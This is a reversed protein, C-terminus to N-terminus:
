NKHYIELKETYFRPLEEPLKSISLNFNTRRIAEGLFPALPIVHLNKMQRARESIPISDTVVFEEISSNDIIDAADKALIAHTVAAYVKKAGHKILTEAGRVLTKGTSVMDDIIICIKGKVDGVIDIISVQDPKPRRKFIIALKGGMREALNSARTVGGADPSVIVLEEPPIHKQEYHKALISIVTLNDVPIDFFGQIAAAHLDCTILRDMGATRMLNAVLKATIPERGSTKKEQKAYGYYPIVACIQHASARRMADIMILLEMLSDNVNGCTPQIIFIRHGRVDEEIKVKIEGNDFRSVTAQGTPLGLYSIISKALEPHANGYFIKVKHTPQYVSNLDMSEIEKSTITDTYEEFAGDQCILAAQNEFSNNM